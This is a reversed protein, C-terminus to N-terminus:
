PKFPKIRLDYRHLLSKQMLPPLLNWGPIHAQAEIESVSGNEDDDLDSLSIWRMKGNKNQFFITSSAALLEDESVKGNHNQDIANMFSIIQGKLKLLDGLDETDVEHTGIVETELWFIFEDTRRDFNKKSKNQMVAKLQSFSIGEGKPDAFKFFRHVVNQFGEWNRWFGYEGDASINKPVMERLLEFNSSSTQYFPRNLAAEVANGIKERADQSVLFGTEYNRSSLGSISGAVYDIAPADNQRIYQALNILIMERQKLSVTKDANQILARAIMGREMAPESPNNLYDIKIQIPYNVLVRTKESREATLHRWEKYVESGEEMQPHDKWYADVKESFVAYDEALYRLEGIYSESTPKNSFLIEQINRLDTAQPSECQNFALQSISVWLLIFLKLKETFKSVGKEKCIKLWRLSKLYNFNLSCSRM